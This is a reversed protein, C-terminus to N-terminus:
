IKAVVRSGVIPPLSGELEGKLLRDVFLAKTEDSIERTFSRLTIDLEVPFPIEYPPRVAAGCTICVPNYGVQTGCAPCTGDAVSARNLDTGNKPPIPPSAQDYHELFREHLSEIVHGAPWRENNKEAGEPVRLEMRPITGHGDLTLLVAHVLGILRKRQSLDPKADWEAIVGELSRILAFDAKHTSLEDM